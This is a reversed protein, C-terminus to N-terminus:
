PRRSFATAVRSGCRKWQMTRSMSASLPRSLSSSCSVDSLEANYSARYSARILFEAEPVLKQAAVFESLQQADLTEATSAREPHDPDVGQSVKTVADGFRLYDTAVAGSRRQVFDSTRSRVGRYYVVGDLHKNAPRRETSLGFHRIMAQIQDHNDDISEGGAEAHLGTEFPEYLTHVRGGVRTRAELVVVDWGSDTLDLAATLGALGAGVVVVRRLSAPDPRPSVHSVVPKGSCSGLGLAVAGGASLRLVSRRTLLGASGTVSPITSADSRPPVACRVPLGERASARRM